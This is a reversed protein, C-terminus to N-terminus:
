EKEDEHAYENIRMGIEAEMYGGLEERENVEVYLGGSCVKVTERAGGIKNIHNLLEKLIQERTPVGVDWWRWNLIAYIPALITALEPAKKRLLKKVHELKEKNM